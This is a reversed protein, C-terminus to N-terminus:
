GGRSKEEVEDGCEWGVVVVVMMMMWEMYSPTPEPDVCVCFTVSECLVCV